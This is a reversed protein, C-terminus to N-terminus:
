RNDALQLVVGYLDFVTSGGDVVALELWDSVEPQNKGIIYPTQLGFRVAYPLAQAAIPTTTQATVTTGLLKQASITGGPSAVSPATNNVYTTQYLAPTLSTLDATAITYILDFGTILGGSQLETGLPVNVSSGALRQIARSINCFILATEAAATKRKYYNGGAARTETWTGVTSAWEDASIFIGRAGLAMNVTPQNAM